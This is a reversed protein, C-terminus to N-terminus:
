DALQVRMIPSNLAAVLMKLNVRFDNAQAQAFARLEDLEQRDLMRGGIFVSEITRTHRIDILPSKSLMLLDAQKGVAVSGFNEAMGSFQAPALTAARLATAPSLGARVWEELEQHVSLGPFVYTDGADTGVMLKIGVAQAQRLHEAALQYLGAYVHAGHERSRAAARDADAKWMGERILWPISSLEAVSRFEGDGALASMRLVQLTPVWWTDSDAMRQMLAACLRNDQENLLRQRFRHYYEALPDHSARFADAGKFCELLFLRPHEVSRQGAELMDVLSVAFPRHGALYLGQERAADALRLYAQRPLESYVKLFDTDRAAYYTVLRKAEAADRAKFFDPFGPPVENGGNVQFSSSLVFRPALTDGKERAQDWRARDHDCAVFSDPESLCGWMERVGTVGSAILLPHYTQPAFKTSHTHMDWLGPMLFRGRGDIRRLSDAVSREGVPSISSIRGQMVVVDSPGVIVGTEVDVIKVGSIIVDEQIGLNPISSLPIVLIATVLLILGLVFGASVLLFKRMFVGCFVYAAFFIIILADIRMM